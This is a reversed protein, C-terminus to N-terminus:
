FCVMGVSGTDTRLGTGGCGTSSGVLIVVVLTALFMVAVDETLGTLCGSGTTVVLSDSFMSWLMMLLVLWSCCM